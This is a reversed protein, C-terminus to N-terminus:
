SPKFSEKLTDIFAAALPSLSRQRHRTLFFARRLSLGGVSLACLAGTELDEAVALTSLISVGVGNKIGERVAETSGMEAVVNFDGTGRGLRKLEEELSKLTGSGPERVIFPEGSLAELSIREKGAWPHRSSVILRMEDEVLKEQLIHKERAAAGVVGLELTGELVGSVIAATDKISLALRVGPYRSKFAGLVRPLLYTGPITSGGVVLSGRLLGQHQAMAAEAEERLSLLRRAYTYLLRGAQTPVAEKPLRDILACGFHTELEKIHSSITPQSIHVIGAARSFSKCEVVTRFIHLQWLDM